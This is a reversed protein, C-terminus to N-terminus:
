EETLQVTPLLFQFPDRRTEAALPVGSRVAIATVIVIIIAILRRTMRRTGFPSMDAVFQAQLIHVV